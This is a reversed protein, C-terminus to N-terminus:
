AAPAGPRRMASLKDLSARTIRWGAGDRYGQLEGRTLRQFVIAPTERLTIAVEALRPDAKVKAM